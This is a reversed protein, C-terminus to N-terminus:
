RPSSRSSTRRPTTSRRSPEPCPTSTPASGARTRHQGPRQDHDPPQFQRRLEYRPPLGSRELATNLASLTGRVTIINGGNVGTVFTLGATTPFTMFGNVVLRLEIVADGADIDTLRIANGNATSFTVTTDEVLTQAGPVTNVPADNVANVTITVTAVNSEALGDIVKYRFTDVGSFNANPTYTFSGNPNLTLQGHQPGDVLVATLPVGDIYSDNVLVGAAPVSLGADENLSYADPNAIPPDDDVITGAGTATGLSANTSNSLTLTLTESPEIATDGTVDVTVTKSTEGAAFTVTGSAATYDSGSTATGDATSYDVTVPWPAPQSLSVTFTLATTGSNGETATANSVSAVPLDDNIITGTAPIGGEGSAVIGPYVKMTLTEDAEVTTDGTVNVTVTKSTEGAAFDMLGGAHSYDSGHTATGNSTSYTVTLPFPAPESLTITFVLPTTGSNGETVSGGIIGLTPFDENQITGTGTATGLVANVPNSLTLTFTEDFEIVTDGTVNATVSKSTQGPSFTVTGSATTYDSGATASGNSTTYGVTVPFPVSQSLTVPFAFATTGANGEFATANGVSVTPFDDNLITGTATGTGIYANTPNTISLTFTENQEVETDGRVFVYANTTTSGITFTVTMNTSNYDSGAIATGNSTVQWVTVPFPAPQSLTLAFQFATTGSHGEVATRSAINVTPFDDNEIGVSATAIGLGVNVPNSLNVRFSENAEVQEDAYIIVPITKTTEGPAFTLTGSTAEYDIGATATGDATAFDVSVSQDFPRSLTVTVNHTSTWHPEQVSTPSVSVLPPGNLAFAVHTHLGGTYFWSMNTFNANMQFVYAGVTGIALTQGDPSLDVDTPTVSYFYGAPKTLQYVSLISGNPSFKVIRNNTGDAAYIESASNM